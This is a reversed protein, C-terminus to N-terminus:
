RRRKQCLRMVLLLGIGNLRVSIQEPADRTAQPPCIQSPMGCASNMRGPRHAAAAVANLARHRELRMQAANSLGICEPQKLPTDFKM